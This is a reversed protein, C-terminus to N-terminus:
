KKLRESITKAKARRETKGLNPYLHDVIEAPPFGLESYVLIRLDRKQDPLDTKILWKVIAKGISEPLGKLIVNQRNIAVVIQQFGDQKKMVRKTTLTYFDLISNV